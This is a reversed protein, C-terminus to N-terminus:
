SDESERQTETANEQTSHEYQVRDTRVHPTTENTKKLKDEAVLQAPHVGFGLEVFGVIVSWLAEIVEREQEPSLGADELFHRYAEVDVELRKGAQHLTMGDLPQVTDTERMNLEDSM